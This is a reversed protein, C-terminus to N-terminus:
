ARLAYHRCFSDLAGDEKVVHVCCRDIRDQDYTWADMFPKLFIRFVHDPGIELARLVGGLPEAECGCRELDAMDFSMKDRLFGQLVSFDVLKSAPIRVDGRRLVYGVTHCNPDGCPLPTFDASSLLGDSQTLFHETGGFAAWSEPIM